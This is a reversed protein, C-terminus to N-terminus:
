RKKAGSADIKFGISEEDEPTDVLNIQDDFQNQNLLIPSM